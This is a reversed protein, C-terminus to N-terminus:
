RWSGRRTDALQIGRPARGLEEVGDVRVVDGALVTIRYRQGTEYSTFVFASDRPDRYLIEVPAPKTAQKM